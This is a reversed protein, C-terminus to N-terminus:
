KKTYNLVFELLVLGGIGVFMWQELRRLRKERDIAGEKIPRFEEKTVYHNDLKIKIDTLNEKINQIDKSLVTLAVNTISSTEAVKAALITATEAVVKAVEAAISATDQKEIETSM